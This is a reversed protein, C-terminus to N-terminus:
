AHDDSDEALQCQVEFGLAHLIDLAKGLQVTPKGREFESLFRVGVNCVAATEVLGMGLQKRRQRVLQGIDLVSQIKGYPIIKDSKM